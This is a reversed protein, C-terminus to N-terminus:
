GCTNPVRIGKNQMGYFAPKANKERGKVVWIILKFM